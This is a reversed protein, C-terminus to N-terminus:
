QPSISIPSDLKNFAEQLVEFFRENDPWLIRGDDPMPRDLGDLFRGLVEEDLKEASVGLGLKEVYHANIIQEYQGALPLVLMKKKLYMCESILSFGASAAVGRCSALDDLFGETSRKKFTCNGAESSDDFGYVIFKQSGFRRLLERLEERGKGTTTYFLIHDGNSAELRRVADRVVPPALVAQEIRLPARFFNVIVYAVAGVYYCRTVISSTLRSFWNKQPHELECLTLVHEHDISIFPVGNRWAWWASFPEFDSIVLEPGFPVFHRRFLEDNQRNGEPLNLLNMKLTESKDVRGDEYAFSLGFIERVRQGFYQRLYSLSKKYGVFMVDHGSDLLRRGILHSRSSHGFGEGAVGYIIKAM